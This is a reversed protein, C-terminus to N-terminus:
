TGSTGSTAEDHVRGEATHLDASLIRANGRAAKRAEPISDSMRGGRDPARGDNEEWERPKAPRRDRVEGPNFHGAKIANYKKEMERVHLFLKEIRPILDQDKGVAHHLLSHQHEIPNSTSPVKVALAPDVTSNAPFIMSAIPRREWWLIWSRIAPFMAKLTLIAADFRESTTNPSLLERLGREFM